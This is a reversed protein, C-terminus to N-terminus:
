DPEGPDRHSPLREGQFKLNKYTVSEVNFGIATVPHASPCAPTLSCALPAHRMREQAGTVRLTFTSPITTVVEGIQTGADGVCVCVCVCLM